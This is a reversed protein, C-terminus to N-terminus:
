ICTICFNFQLVFAAPHTGLLPLRVAWANLWGPLPTGCM